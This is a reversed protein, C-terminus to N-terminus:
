IVHGWECKGTICHWAPCGRPILGWYTTAERVRARVRVQVRYGSGSVRRGLGSVRFNVEGKHVWASKVERRGIEAGGFNFVDEFGEFGIPDRRGSRIEVREFDIERREDARLM